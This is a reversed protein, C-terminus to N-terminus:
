PKKELKRRIRDRASDDLKASPALEAGLSRAARGLFQMHRRFRVCPPCVLLHLRVLLREKWDLAREREESTLRAVESCKIALKM